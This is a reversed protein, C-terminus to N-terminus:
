EVVTYEIFSEGWIPGPFAEGARVHLRYTGLPANPGIRIALGPWDRTQGPGFNKTRPGRWPDNVGGGPLERTAWLATSHGDGTDENTVSLDFAFSSGRPITTVPATLSVTFEPASPGCEFSFVRVADIGGEVVSGGNLDSIEFRVRGQTTPTVFDAVRFSRTKWGSSSVPGITEALVWTSGADNSVWTHFLDNNPDGGFNNTYWLGYEVFPDAGQTFDLIPSILWTTGDDVDSDGEANETLFCPGSGDQDTAPDGRDGGGVPVGREWSGTSLGPGDEVTWGQDTSFDDRFSESVGAFALGSFVTDPASFPHFVVDGETTEASFYYSVTVGCDFDPFVADYVNDSVVQMPIETFTGSGDDYFLKGTGPQPEVSQGTVEVRITTGGAPDILDPRGNPLDFTLSATALAAQVAEFADIIGHGYDNDEGAPGLDLATDYLIQKVQEVSIDPNAQRMLAVVGNVHPSAMSTGSLSGYGGGPLSSRVSVGPAAVDPKIAAQGGPTCFTPGRSSFPAIPFDPVNGDVAAVACTRFDDTARDAPRRLGSSGENGASFLIVVGAAELADLFSWFTEDCPPFGHADLLGWSNSCVDPVDFNTAPDGDPDLMWEFSSIADAVTQPIGGGRDIAGAAMWFAGPAVGVRDGPEGGCVTGMTHTGHGNDDYPFDNQGAFPDFWAWEPHGAYRPDAVGAWRSALAPHAGDVGTDINAVLVGEGTIGLDWVENARIAIIGPEIAGRPGPSAGGGSGAPRIGEIPYNPYIRRVDDREALRRIEDPIADVRVINDVWYPDVRVVGGAIQREALYATIDALAASSSVQLARVVTEHRERLSARREDLFSTLGDLDVREQMYVLVSVIEDAAYRSLAGHFKGGADDPRAGEDQAPGSASMPAPSFVLLAGLLISLAGAFPRKKM